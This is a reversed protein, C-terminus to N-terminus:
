ARRRSRDAPRPRRRPRRPRVPARPRRGPLEMSPPPLDFGGVPKILDGGAVAPTTLRPRNGPTGGPPPSTIPQAGSGGPPPLYSGGSPRAGGFQTPVYGPPAPAPTWDSPPRVTPAPTGGAPTVKPPTYGSNPPAPGGSPQQAVVTGFAALGAAAVAAALLIPRKRVACVGAVPRVNGWVPKGQRGVAHVQKGGPRTM